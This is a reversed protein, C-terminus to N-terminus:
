QGQGMCLQWASESGVHGHMQASMRSSAHINVGDNNLCTGSLRCSRNACVRVSARAGFCLCVGLHPCAHSCLIDRTIHLPVLLIPGERHASLVQVAHFCSCVLLATALILPGACSPSHTRLHVSEVHPAPVPQWASSATKTHASM